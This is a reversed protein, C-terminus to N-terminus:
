PQINPLLIEIACPHADADILVTGGYSEIIATAMLLEFQLEFQSSFPRGMSQSAPGVHISVDSESKKLVISTKKTGKGDGCLTLTHELLHGNVHVFTNVDHVRYSINRRGPIKRLVARIVSDVAIVQASQGLLNSLTQFEMVIYELRKLESLVVEHMPSHGETILSMFGELATLPNGIEHAMVSSLYSWLFRPTTPHNTTMANSPSNM